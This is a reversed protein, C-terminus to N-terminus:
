SKKETYQSVVHEQDFSRYEMYCTLDEIEKPSDEKGESTWDEKAKDREEKDKQKFLLFLLQNIHFLAKSHNSIRVTDRVLIM